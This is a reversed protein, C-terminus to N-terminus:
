ESLLYRYKIINEQLKVYNTVYDKAFQEAFIKQSIKVLENFQDITIEGALLKQTLEIINAVIRQECAIAAYFAAFKDRIQGFIDESYFYNKLQTFITKVCIEDYGGNACEETNLVGPVITFKELETIGNSFICDSSNATPTLNTVTEIPNLFATTLTQPLRNITVQQVVITWRKPESFTLNAVSSAIAPLLGTYTSFVRLTATQGVRYTIDTNGVWVGDVWQEVGTVGILGVVFSGGISTVSTEVYTAM